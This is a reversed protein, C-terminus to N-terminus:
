QFSLLEIPKGSFLMCSLYGFTEPDLSNTTKTIADLFDFNLMYWWFSCIEFLWFDCFKVIGFQAILTISYIFYLLLIQMHMQPISPFFDLSQPGLVLMQLIQLVCHANVPIASTTSPNKSKRNSSMWSWHSRPVLLFYM